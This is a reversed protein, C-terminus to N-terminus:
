TLYEEEPCINKGRKRYGINTNYGSKKYICPFFTSIKIWKICKLTPVVVLGQHHRFAKYFLPIGTLPNSKKDVKDVKNRFHINENKQPYFSRPSQGFGRPFSERSRM